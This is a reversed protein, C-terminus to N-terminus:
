YHGQSTLYYIAGYKIITIFDTFKCLQERIHLNIIDHCFSLPRSHFVHVKTESNNNAPISPILVENIFLNQYMNLAGSKFYAFVANLRPVRVCFKLVAIILNIGLCPSLVFM